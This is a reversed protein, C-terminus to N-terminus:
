CKKKGKEEKRKREQLKVIAVLARKAKGSRGGHIRRASATIRNPARQKKGDGIAGKGSGLRPKVHGGRTRAFYFLTHRKSMKGNKKGFASIKM